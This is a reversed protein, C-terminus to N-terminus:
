NDDEKRKDLIVDLIDKKPPAKELNEYCYKIFDAEWSFWSISVGHKEYAWAIFDFVKASKSM